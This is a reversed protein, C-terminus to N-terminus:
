PNLREKKDGKAVVVNKKSLRFNLKPADCISQLFVCRMRFNSRQIHTAKARLCRVGSSIGNNASTAALLCVGEGKNAECKRNKASVLESSFAASKLAIYLQFRFHKCFIFSM